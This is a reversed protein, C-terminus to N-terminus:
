VLSNPFVGNLAPRDEPAKLLLPLGAAMFVVLPSLAAVEQNLRGAHDRFRRGLAQAPVIGLGVENSVVVLPSELISLCQLFESIHKEVDRGKLIVNSLWLTLCDLLVVRGPACERRLATPLDLPEEVTQWRAGRRTQHLRIREKMEEDGPEATALYVPAGSTGAALREAWASKGSRAGGLVLTLHPLDLGRTTM